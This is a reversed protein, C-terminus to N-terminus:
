LISYVQLELRGLDKSLQIKWESSDELFPKVMGLLEHYLGSQEYAEANAQSDWLTMSIGEDNKITSIIVCVGLCGETIKLRPIIKNDYIEKIEPLFDPKYKAQVIRMYM